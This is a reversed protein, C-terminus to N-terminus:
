FGTVVRRQPAALYANGQMEVIRSVTRFFENALV